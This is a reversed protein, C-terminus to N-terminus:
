IDYVYMVEGPFIHSRVKISRPHSPTCDVLLYSFPPETVEEYVNLFRKWKAAKAYFQRALIHMQSEDRKNAFLIFIHCNLSINRACTGQPFVNQTIFLASINKHHCGQTFLEEMEENQIIRKMLDDLVIVHFQGNAIQDIDSKSPLGEQFKIPCPIDQNSKIEEFFQQYAGYCYLISQIPESFLDSGLMKNVWHTKGSNTPGAILVPSGAGIPVISM